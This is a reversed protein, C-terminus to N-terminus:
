YDNQGNTISINLNSFQSVKHWLNAKIAVMIENDATGRCNDIKNLEAHLAEFKQEAIGLANQLIEIEQHTFKLVRENNRLKNQM